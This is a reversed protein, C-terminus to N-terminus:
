LAIPYGLWPITPSFLTDHCLDYICERGIAVHQAGTAGIEVRISELVVQFSQDDYQSSDVHLHCARCRNLNTSAYSRFTRTPVEVQMRFALVQLFSLVAREDGASFDVVFRDPVSFAPLLQEQWRSHAIRTPEEINKTRFTIARIRKLPTFVSDDSVFTTKVHPEFVFTQARYTELWHADLRSGQLM